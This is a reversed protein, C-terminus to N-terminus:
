LLEEEDEIVVGRRFANVFMEM